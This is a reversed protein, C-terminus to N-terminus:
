QGKAQRADRWPQAARVYQAALFSAQLARWLGAPGSRRAASGLLQLPGLLAFAAAKLKSREYWWYAKLTAYLRSGHETRSYQQRNVPSPHHHVFLLDSYQIRYGLSVAHRAMDIEECGYRFVEDFLARDFLERPFVTANIVVARIEGDPPVRQLGWFDANHPTVKRPTGTSHNMEYGTVITRAGADAAVKRATAFADPPVIVDDDIFMVHSGTSARICANRNPGLGKRPGGPFSGAVERAPAPDASDDSVIIQEPPEMATTAAELGKRLDAPRNMTCICLSLTPRTTSDAGAM